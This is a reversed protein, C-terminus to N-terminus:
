RRLRIHFLNTSIARAVSDGFHKSVTQAFPSLFGKYLITALAVSFALLLIYEVTAQGAARLERQRKDNRKRFFVTTFRM